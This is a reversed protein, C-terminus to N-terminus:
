KRKRFLKIGDIECVYEFGAEILKRAEDVTHAVSSHYEDSEFKILQTYILTSNINKHGLLRMVHLIDKTKAYEMTGKWHRLTHFTIRLLRPNGLKIALKKRQINFNAEASHKTMKGFVKSNRIPLRKLMSILQDSMRFIRPNGNKEPTNLTITKRKFDINKWELSLAEGLRMGTEKLLQLLTSIKKGCGAILADIESELPIFPLKRSPKYRPPKWPIGNRKAFAQYAVSALCKTSNSWNKKKAITEKVSEPNLLNAGAKILLQLFKMYNQITNECYGEKKLNWAFSLIKGKVEQKLTAGAAGKEAEAVKALLAREQCANSYTTTAGVSRLTKSPDSFRYGCTRCIYRQIAGFSTYRLGDKWVRKSGCQPCAPARSM